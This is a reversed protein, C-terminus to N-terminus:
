RYSREHAPEDGTGPDDPPNPLPFIVPRAVAAPAAPAPAITAPAIDVPAAAAEVASPPEAPAAAMPAVVPQPPALGVQEVSTTWRFADLKGTVPSAPAWRGSVVGDAMWAPDRPARSGRSLWERVLGTEGNEAEEIEAMLLCMRATPRADSAVLPAMSDRAAAFDRIALAGRALMIRSEPDDPALRALTKARAFRDASSDGPRMDLYAAVLDPHPAAAYAREVLKSAARLAGRRAMLRAALAVAPTLDPARKAASQALRLAREPDVLEHEQAIATELVARQRDATKADIMKARANAEVTALAGAWDSHAAQHSVVAEGSWPLAATKHAERAFHHAAEADGRRQAEIHLGRLGLLRTEDRRAMDAFAAEAGARDGGLQAAQAHLLMGLPEHPLHRAVDAAAKRATRVDGAGAAVMGRTLAEYGKRRKRATRAYNFISPARVLLRFLSWLISLVIAALLVFGLAVLVSTDIRHDLWVVTIQGPKDVLWSLGFAVGALAALFIILRWM